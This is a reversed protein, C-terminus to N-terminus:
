ATPQARSRALWTGFIVLVVGLALFTLDYGLENPGPRVHHLGLLQHDVIGEVLNFWGWGALMWGTLRRGRGPEGAAPAAALLGIGVLVMILCGLHFLGDGVMNIRADPGHVQPYWGSLLHHWELLQHAVIGDVFGGAGIGLVLGASRLRRARVSVTM